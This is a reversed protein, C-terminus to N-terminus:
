ELVTVDFKRRWRYRRGGWVFTRRALAYAILIPNLLFAPYALLVTWRVLGFLGYVVATLVTSIVFARVPNAVAGVAGLVALACLVVLVWPEHRRLIQLWRTHREASERLTGGIEVRRPRRRVTAALRESLLGDDSVTRRLDALFAGEDLDEREFIVAGGWIGDALYLGLSGGVAYIPELLLSLPDRGVFAPVESVPGHREYDAQMTALWDPPHAFDDDTWVVRDNTAADMGAAIANAKGSCGEPEGAVVLRVGAPFRDTASAVPDEATDCIVLLEDAPGLQAALDAVVPTWRITPLLVSTPPFRSM